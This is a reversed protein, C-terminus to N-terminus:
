LVGSRFLMSSLQAAAYAGLMYIFSFGSLYFLVYAFEMGNSRSVHYHSSVALILGIFSVVAVPLVLLWVIQRSLWVYGPRATRQALFQVSDRRHDALFVCSGILAAMLGSVLWITPVSSDSIKEQLAVLCLTLLVLPIAAVALAGITSKSQRFQQWVLRRLGTHRRPSPVAEPSTDGDSQTEERGFRGVRIKDVDIGSLWRRGLVVDAVAVLCFIILMFPVAAYYADLSFRGHEGYYIAAGNVCVSAASVALLVAVLPRKSLLSFFVGWALGVLTAALCVIWVRVHNTADLLYFGGLFLASSSILMFILLTSAMAFVTTGLLLWSSAAPLSRLFWYTRTERESSFLMAGCGAAYLAVFFSALYYLGAATSDTIHGLIGQKSALPIVLFMLSLVLMAIWFGCLTRFEKWLLRRFIITNM